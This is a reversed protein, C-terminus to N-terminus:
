ASLFRYFNRLMAATAGWIFYRRAATYPMAYFRRRTGAFDIARREHFAPNMLFALPVEFAEAVEFSDLRLDFPREVVGFVPTVRSRTSTVYEPLAGIIEVAAPGLGIEEETERLAAHVPSEDDHEIRGGPFSIQGAHDHLHATRETLLVTVGQPRAVLPVLVAAPRPPADLNFLRGDTVIEPQWALPAAFRARLAPVTLAHAPMPAGRAAPDDFEPDLPVLEPDFPPRRVAGAGAASM